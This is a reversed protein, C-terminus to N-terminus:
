EKVMIYIYMHIGARWMKTKYRFLTPMDPANNIIDLYMASLKMSIPAIYMYLILFENNLLLLKNNDKNTCHIIFSVM